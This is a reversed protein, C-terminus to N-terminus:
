RRARRRSRSRRRARTRAGAGAGRVEGAAARVRALERGVVEVRSRTSRRSANGAPPTSGATSSTRSRKASSRTAPRTTATTSRPTTSGCAASRRGRARRRPAVGAGRAAGAAADGRQRSRQVDRLRPRDAEALRTAERAARGDGAGRPRARRRHDPRGAVVPPQRHRARSPPILVRPKGGPVAVVGLGDHGFTCPDPYDILGYALMTGDPSWLAPHSQRPEVHVGPKGLVRIATDHTIAVTGNSAVSGVAGFMHETRHLVRGDPDSSWRRPRDDRRGRRRGARVGARTLSDVDDRKRVLAGSALELVHLRDGALVAVREEGWSVTPGTSASRSRGARSRRGPPM